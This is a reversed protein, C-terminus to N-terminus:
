LNVLPSSHSNFQLMIPYTKGNLDIVTPKYHVPHEPVEVYKHHHYSLVAIPIRDEHHYHHNHNNHYTEYDGYHDNLSRNTDNEVNNQYTKEDSNEENNYNNTYHNGHSHIGPASAFLPQHITSSPGFYETLFNNNENFNLDPFDMMVENFRHASASSVIM